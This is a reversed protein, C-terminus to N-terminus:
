FDNSGYQIIAGNSMIVMGNQPSIVRVVGYDDLKDGVRLTVSRGNASELWVRGPVIARVHYAIPAAMSKKPQSKAPPSKIKEIEAIVQQMATSLQEIQQTVMTMDQQIKTMGEDLGSIQGQGSTIKKTMDEIEQQMTKQMEATKDEGIELKIIPKHSTPSAELQQQAVIAGAQAAIKKQEAKSAKRSAQINFVVYIFLISFVILGPVAVRRLNISSLKSKLFDLSVYSKLSDLTVAQKGESVPSGVSPEEAVSSGIPTMEESDVPKYESAEGLPLKTKDDM